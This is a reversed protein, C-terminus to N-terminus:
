ERFSADLWKFYQIIGLHTGHEHYGRLRSILKMWEKYLSNSNAYSLLLEFLVAVTMSLKLHYNEISICNKMVLAPFTTPEVNGMWHKCSGRGILNMM